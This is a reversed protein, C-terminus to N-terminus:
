KDTAIDMLDVWWELVEDDDDGSADADTLGDDDNNSLELDATDGEATMPQETSPSAPVVGPVPPECRKGITLAGTFRPDKALKTLRKIHIADCRGRELRHQQVQYALAPNTASLEQERAELMAKKDAMHTWLRTIEINCQIIEERARLIKYHQAQLSRGAPKAWPKERIDQRSDRLMDFESLFACEIITDWDLAPRPPMLNAAANNYNAQGIHKRMKYGTQARNVKALELIREVILGELRDLRKQYLAMTSGETWRDQPLIGLRNELAHVEELQANRRERAQRRKTEITATKDREPGAITEPTDVRIWVQQVSRLTDCTEKFKVLLLYYEIELKEREPVEAKVRSRLYELEDKLWEAFVDTSAIGMEKMSTKLAPEMSLIELAQKYSNVLFTSLNSYTHFSDYHRAYETIAQRRHFISAHRIATALANSSDCLGVLSTYLEEFAKPGLRSRRLTVDFSCGIDYGGGLRKPLVGFFRSLIAIAYKRLEGSNVMDTILLVFGHRCVSLFIRTEDYVRWMARTNSEQSNHWSDCGAPEDAPANDANPDLHIDWEDVEKRPLFYDGGGERCDIREKSPGMREGLEDVIKDRHHMRKLSDNGDMTFFMSYELEDEGELQYLCAPCVNALRWNPGNRDLAIAVRQRTQRLMDLYVNFAISFQTTLYPIFPVGHMDCLTKVFPQITLRPCRVFLSRYLELTATSIAVNIKVPSCPFLGQRVLASSLYKDSSTETFMVVYSSFLDIVKVKHNGIVETAGKQKSSWDMYSDVMSKMQPAFQLVRRQTRDRRRSRHDKYTRKKVRDRYVNAWLEEMEGWEGGEHSLPIAAQGDLFDEEIGMDVDQQHDANSSQEGAPAATFGEKVKTALVQTHLLTQITHGLRGTNGGSKYQRGAITSSNTKRKTRIAGSM